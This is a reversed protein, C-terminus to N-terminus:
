TGNRSSKDFYTPYLATCPIRHSGGFFETTWKIIEYCTTVVNFFPTWSNKLVAFCQSGTGAGSRIRPEGSHRFSHM